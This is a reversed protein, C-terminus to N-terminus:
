AGSEAAPTGAPGGAPDDTRGEIPGEALAQHMAHWALSACKVRSPYDRVGAFAAASGLEALLDGPDEAEGTLLAIMRGFIREAEALSQGTLAETMVSASAQSIACGQGEFAAGTVMGDEVRLEVKVQDGCLPNYGEARHTAGALHGFNRPHKNHDLIIEQYLDDLDFM